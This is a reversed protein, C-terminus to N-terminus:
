NNTDSYAIHDTGIAKIWKENSDFINKYLMVVLTYIHLFM